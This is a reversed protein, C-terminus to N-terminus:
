NLILIFFIGENDSKEYKNLKDELNKQDFSTIGKIEIVKSINLIRTLYNLHNKFFEDENFIPESFNEIVEWYMPEENICYLEFKGNNNLM